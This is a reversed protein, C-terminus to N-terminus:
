SPFEDEIPRNLNMRDIDAWIMMYEMRNLGFWSRPYTHMGGCKPCRQPQSFVTGRWEIDMGRFKHGCDDCTFKITGRFM